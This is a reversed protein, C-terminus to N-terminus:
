NEFSKDSLYRNRICKIATKHIGNTIEYFVFRGDKKAHVFGEDRLKKLYQSVKVQELDVAKVIDGVCSKGALTLYELIRMKDIHAFLKIHNATMLTFDKALIAKHREDLFKFSDTMYGYLKRICLFLSAPYEGSLNYYVFIGKRCSTVLDAERLKKLSQSVFLQEEGIGKAIASVSSAGYVDLYEVIRLRVPHGIHSIGKVAQKMIALPLQKEMKLGTQFIAKKRYILFYINKCINKNVLKRYLM